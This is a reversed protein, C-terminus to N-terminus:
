LCPRRRIRSATSSPRRCSGAQPTSGDYRWLIDEDPPTSRRDHDWPIPGNHRVAGLASGFALYVKIGNEELIHLIEKLMESELYQIQKIDITM